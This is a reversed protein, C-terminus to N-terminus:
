SQMQEKPVVLNSHLVRIKFQFAIAESCSFGTAGWFTYSRVTDTRGTAAARIYLFKDHYRVQCAEATPGAHRHALHSWRCIEVELM